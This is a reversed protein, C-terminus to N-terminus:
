LAGQDDFAPDDTLRALGSGDTKVRYIDASGHRESTFVVWRGDRSFSADYDLNPHPLLPRANGGDTDAVFIDTNLPAFSAFALAYESEGDRGRPERQGESFQALSFALVLIILKEPMTTM